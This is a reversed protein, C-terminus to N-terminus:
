AIMSTAKAPNVCLCGLIAEAARDSAGRANTGLAAAALKMQRERYLHHREPAAAIAHVLEAPDEVVDGLHWHIYHPDTRWNVAHANLFVCPRPNALFEYVQSSVDGVYVSALALYTSDISRDSGTDILITETSRTEIRERKRRSANCFMKVHPAVVLNLGRQRSFQQLMPGLFRSWSSLGAEFHPNYLIVPQDNAFLPGEANMLLEATELKISGTLAYNGSRILGRELMQRETKEGAVLVFDFTAIRPVFAYDRDGFGHPTYILLPKEIGEDRAMAVTNEVALIADFSNLVSRNDRLTLHKFKGLVKVEQRLRTLASRHLPELRM